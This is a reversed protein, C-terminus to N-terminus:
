VDGGGEAIGGLAAFAKALEDIVQHMARDSVLEDSQCWFSMKLHLLEHILTKEFDFPVIREGYYIPDLIDISATKIAERWDTAGATDQVAMDEPHCNIRLQITWDTLRLAKQWYALRSQAYEETIM